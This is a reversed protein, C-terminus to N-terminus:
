RFMMYVKAAILDSAQNECTSGCVCRTRLLSATEGIAIRAMLGCLRYLGLKDALLEDPRMRVLM